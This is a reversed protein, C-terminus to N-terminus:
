EDAGGGGLPGDQGAHEHGHEHEKAIMWAECLQKVSKTIGRGVCNCRHARIDPHNECGCLGLVHLIYLDTSKNGVKKRNSNDKFHDHTIKKMM